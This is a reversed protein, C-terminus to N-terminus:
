RDGRSLKSSECLERIRKLSGSLDQNLSSIRRQIADNHMDLKELRAIIKQMRVLDQLNKIANQESRGETVADDVSDSSSNKLINQMLDHTKQLERLGKLETKSALRERELIQVLDIDEFKVIEVKVRPVLTGREELVTVAKKARALIESRIAALFRKEQDINWDLLQGLYKAQPKLRDFITSQVWRQSKLTLDTTASKLSSDSLDRGSSTAMMEALGLAMLFRGTIRMSLRPHELLTKGEHGESYNPFICLLAGPIILATFNLPEASSSPNNTTSKHLHTLSYYSQLLTRITRAYGEVALEAVEIDGKRDQFEQDVAHMGMFLKANAMQLEDFIANKALENDVSCAWDMRAEEARPGDKKLHDESIGLVCTLAATGLCALWKNQLRFNLAFFSM